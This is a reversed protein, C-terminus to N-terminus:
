QKLGCIFCSMNRKFNNAKCKECIWQNSRKRQKKTADGPPIIPSSRLHRGQRDQFPSFINNPRGFPLESVAFDSSHKKRMGAAAEQLEAIKELSLCFTILQTHTLQSLQEVTRVGISGLGSIVDESLISNLKNLAVHAPNFIVHINHKKAAEQQLPKKEAETHDPYGSISFIERYEDAATTPLPHDSFPTVVPTNRIFGAARTEKVNQQHNRHSLRYCCLAHSQRWNAPSNSNGNRNWTMLLRWWCKMVLVKLRRSNRELHAKSGLRHSVQARQWLQKRTNVIGHIM